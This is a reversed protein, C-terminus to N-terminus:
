ISIAGSNESHGSLWLFPLNLKFCEINWSVCWPSTDKTREWKGWDGQSKTYWTIGAYTNGGFIAEQNELVNRNAIFFQLTWVKEVNVLVWCLYTHHIWEGVYVRHFFFMGRCSSMHGLHRALSYLFLIHEWIHPISVGVMDLYPYFNHLFGQNGDGSYNWSVSFELQRVPWFQLYCRHM